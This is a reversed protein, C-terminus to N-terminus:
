IPSIRQLQTRFKTDEGLADTFIVALTSM